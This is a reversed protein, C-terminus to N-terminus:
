QRSVREGYSNFWLPQPMVLRFGTAEPPTTTSVMTGKEDLYSGGMLVVGDVSTAVEAANGAMDFLSQENAILKGIPHLRGGSNQRNWSVVNANNGGAYTYNESFLGGYYAFLWENVTPLRWEQHCSLLIEHCLSDIQTKTVGTVPCEPNRRNYPTPDYHMYWHWLDQTVEQCMMWYGDVLWIIGMTETTDVKLTDGTCIWHSPYIRQRSELGWEQENLYAPQAGCLIAVSLLSIFTLVHRFYM